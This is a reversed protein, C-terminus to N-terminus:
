FPLDDNPRRADDTRTYADLAVHLADLRRLLTRLARDLPQRLPESALQPNGALLANRAAGAAADLIALAAREPSVILTPVSPVYRSM